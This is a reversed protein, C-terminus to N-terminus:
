FSVKVMELIINYSMVGSWGFTTLYIDGTVGAGADNTIGGFECMEIEDSLSLCAFRVPTTADWDLVVTLGSSCLHHIGNVRVKTPAPVYTSVDVKITRAENSTDLLGTFLMVLNRDGDILTRSTVTNAM